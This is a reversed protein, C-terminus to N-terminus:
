IGRPLYFGNTTIRLIHGSQKSVGNVQLMQNEDMYFESQWASSDDSLESGGGESKGLWLGESGSGKPRGYWSASLAFSGDSQLYFFM